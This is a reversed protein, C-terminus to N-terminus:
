VPYAHILITMQGFHMVDVCELYYKFDMLLEM